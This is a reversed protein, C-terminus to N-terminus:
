PTSPASSTSPDAPHMHKMLGDRVSPNSLAAQLIGNYEDVTLGQDNVAKALAKNAEGTIRQKEAPPASALQQQYTKNLSAVQDMAAAAAGLKQDPIPKQDPVAPTLSQAQALPKSQTEDEARVAPALLLSGAGLAALAIQLIHRSVISRHQTSLM